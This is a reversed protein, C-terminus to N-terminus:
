RWNDARKLAQQGAPPASSMAAAISEPEKKRADQVLRRLHQELNMKFRDFALELEHRSFRSLPDSLGTQATAWDLLSGGSGTFRYLKLTNTLRAKFSIFPDTAEDPLEGLVQAAKLHDPGDLGAADSLKRDLSPAADPHRLDAFATSITKPGVRDFRIGLRQCAHGNHVAAEVSTVAGTGWEPRGAHIVRDGVKWGSTSMLM